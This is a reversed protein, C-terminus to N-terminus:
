TFAPLERTIQNISNGLGDWGSAYNGVNRQNKGITADVQKLVGNYKNLRGELSNLQALEKTTLNLGLEKKAALNNYTQTLQNVKTQIKNYLNESKALQAQQKAETALEKQRQKELAAGTTLIQQTTAKRKTEVADLKTQIEVSKQLTENVQKQANVFSSPTVKGVQQISTVVGGWLKIQENILSNAEKIVNQYNILDNKASM